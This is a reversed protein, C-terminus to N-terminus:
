HIPRRDTGSPTAPLPPTVTAELLPRGDVQPLTLACLWALTPAIDAPSVAEAYRGAKIGSGYLFLPVWTDYRYPTGHSAASGDGFLWYPQQILVIDGTRDTFYTYRVARALPDADDWRSREGTLLVRAVGSVRGLSAVLM